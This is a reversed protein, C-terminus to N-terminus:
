VSTARSTEGRADGLVDKGSRGRRESPRLGEAVGAWGGGVARGVGGLSRRREERM